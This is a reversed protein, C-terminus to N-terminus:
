AKVAAHAEADARAQLADQRLPGSWDVALVRPKHLARYQVGDRPVEHVEYGCDTRWMVPGSKQTWKM